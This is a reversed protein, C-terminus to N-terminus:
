YKGGSIEKFASRHHCPPQPLQGHKGKHRLRIYQYVQNMRLRTINWCNDYKVRLSDNTFVGADADLMERMRRYREETLEDDRKWRQGNQCSTNPCSESRHGM